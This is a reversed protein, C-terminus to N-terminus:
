LKAFVTFKANRDARVAQDLSRVPHILFTVIWGIINLLVV